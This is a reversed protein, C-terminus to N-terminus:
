QRARSARHKRHHLWMWYGSWPLLAGCLASLFYITKTVIGGWQGTHLSYFLHRVEDAPMFSEFLGYAMSRYWGFSWTLGTLAMLLLFVVTYIGLSVHSDHFARRWGQRLNLTLRPKLQGARRPVWMVIGSILVIVMMIASVGVLWKGVSGEGKKAPADLLWRHLKRVERFFPLAQPRGHQGRGAAAQPTSTQPTAAHQAAPTEATQASTPRHGSEPRGARHHQRDGEHRPTADPAAPTAAVATPEAPANEAPAPAIAATIEKEFVLIAGTLCVLSFLIGFPLSLWLHLKRCLNRM